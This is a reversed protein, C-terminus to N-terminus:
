KAYNNNSDDKDILRCIYEKVSLHLRDANRIAKLYHYDDIHVCSSSNDGGTSKGWTTFMEAWQDRSGYTKVLNNADPWSIRIYKERNLRGKSNYLYFDKSRGKKRYLVGQPTDCILESTENCYFVGEVNVRKEPM